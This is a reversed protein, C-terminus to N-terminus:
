FSGLRKEQYLDVAPPYDRSKYVSKIADNQRIMAKTLEISFLLARAVDDDPCDAALDEWADFVKENVHMTYDISARLKRLREHRRDQERNRRKVEGKSLM